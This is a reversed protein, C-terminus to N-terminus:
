ASPAIRLTEGEFIVSTRFFFADDCVSLRHRADGKNGGEPMSDILHRVADLSYQTEQFNLRNAHIHGSNNSLALALLLKMDEDKFKSWSTHFHLQALNYLNLANLGYSHQLQGVRIAESHYALGMNFLVLCLKGQNCESDQHILLARPYFEFINDASRYGNQSAISVSTPGKLIAESAAVEESCCVSQPTLAAVNVSSEDWCSWFDEDENDAAISGNCAVSGFDEKEGQQISVMLYGLADDLLSVAGGFNGEQLMEVASANLHKVSQTITEM